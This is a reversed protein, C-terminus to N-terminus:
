FNPIVQLHSLEYPPLHALNKRLVWKMEKIQIKVEENKSLLEVKSKLNKWCVFISFSTM